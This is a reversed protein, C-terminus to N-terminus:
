SGSWPLINVCLFGILLLFRRCMTELKKIIKIVGIKCFSDKGLKSFGPIVFGINLYMFPSLDWKNDLSRGRKDLIPWNLNLLFFPPPLPNFIKLKFFFKLVGTNKHNVYDNSISFSLIYFFDALPFVLFIIKLVLWKLWFM